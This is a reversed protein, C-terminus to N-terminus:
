LSFVTASADSFEAPCLQSTYPVCNIYHCFFCFSPDPILYFTIFGFVFMLFVLPLCIILLLRKRAADWRGFTIYPVFIIASPVGFLLGGLPLASCQM